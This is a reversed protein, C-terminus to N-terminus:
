GAVGDLGADAHDVLVEFQHGRHRDDLVHDDAGLGLLPEVQGLGPAPELLEEGVVVHLDIGVRLDAPERHPLLLPHLDELREVEADLYEDQVLGGRHQGRLADILQEPDQAPHAVLAEGDDQDGM